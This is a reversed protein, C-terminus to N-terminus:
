FRLFPASRCHVRLEGRGLLTQVANKMRKSYGLKRFRFLGFSAAFGRSEDVISAGFRGHLDDFISPNPHSFGYAHIVKAFNL